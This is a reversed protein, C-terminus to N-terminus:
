KEDSERKILSVIRELDVYLQKLNKYLQDPNITHKEMSIMSTELLATMKDTIELVNPKTRM